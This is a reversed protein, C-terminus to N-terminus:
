MMGSAERSLLPGLVSPASGFRLYRGAAQPYDEQSVSVALLRAYDSQFRGSKVSACIQLIGAGSGIPM